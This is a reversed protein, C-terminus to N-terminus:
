SCLEEATFWYTVEGAAQELRLIRAALNADHIRRLFDHANM